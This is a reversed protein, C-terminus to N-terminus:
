ESPPLVRIIAMMGGDEHALIHRHYVFDGIDMGRFDMLLTVSPYPGTGTWYPVQVMDLYQQEATPVPVGNQQELLFHIQHQHFEHAEFTRNKSPGSKWRARIPSSLPHIILM